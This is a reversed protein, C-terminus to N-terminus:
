PWRSVDQTLLASSRIHWAAHTMGGRQEEHTHHARPRYPKEAQQTSQQKYSPLPQKLRSGPPSQAARRGETSASVKDLPMMVETTLSKGWATHM